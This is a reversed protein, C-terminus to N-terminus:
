RRATRISQLALFFVNGHRADELLRSQLLAPLTRRGM